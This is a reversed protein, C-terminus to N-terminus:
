RHPDLNPQGRIRHPHARKRPQEVVSRRRRRLRRGLRRFRQPHVPRLLPPLPAATRRPRNGSRTATTARRDEVLVFPSKNGTREAFCILGRLTLIRLCFHVVGEGLPQGAAYPGAAQWTKRQAPSLKPAIRDALEQGLENIALQRGSLVADIEAATHDVAEDLSLGLEALAPDVGTILHVRAKETPPLVGTTFIPTDATPFFYPSGRMCWTQLLTKDAGILADVHDPTVGEVRAHLALLASGPPSNQIGCAGAVDPLADLPQRRTLHHAHLRFARVAGASVEVTTGSKRGTM